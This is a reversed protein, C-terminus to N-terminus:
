ATAILAEEDKLNIAALCLLLLTPLFYLSAFPALFSFLVRVLIPLTAAHVSIRYAEGYSLQIQKFRSILVVLLAVFFLWVLYLSFGIVLFIFILLIVLPALATLFPSVLGVWNDFVAQNITLDKLNSLPQIVLQNDRYYILSNKTLWALTKLSEFKKLDFDHKTDIVLLNQTSANQWKAPLPLAYPEAVNAFAEGGKIKIELGSPYWTKAQSKLLSTFTTILPVAVLAFVITLLLALILTLRYYYGITKKNSESRVVRYYIPNYISNRIEQLLGM